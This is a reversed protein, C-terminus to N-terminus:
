TKNHRLISGHRTHAFQGQAIAPKGSVFVYHMGGSLRRPELFSAHERLDEPRFICIDADMGVQLRGKNAIRMSEAPLATVRRVAEQLSLVNEKCVYREFLRAYTGYVRPHPLGKIPYTADSIVSAFPDRLIQCIDDECNIRDIMTVACRERVLLACICDVPDLSLREAAENVTLGILAQHEARQMSSLIINDWGVMQAINDFDHAFKIRERLRDRQIPDSLRECIGDVGGELYDPPLLHLLQTSGAEYLYVDCTVDVGEARAQEMKRLADPIRKRWNRTGMAKLHSIHLPCRLARAVQLMEDLAECVKDGEERMHVCIPFQTNKLPELASILSKTTYFCEPAYGLGLSVGLAGESLAKELRLHIQRMDSPDNAQYGCVDTRVTGGGVTMGVHIPLNKCTELYAQMSHTPIDERLEGTVPQLYRLLADRNKEGFPALSLGCLGNVISTLGQALELEGFGDRFVAADAHRHIDLFGPTVCYGSVDLLEHGELNQGIAVIKGNEIALDAVYPIGGSGDVLTGGCLVTEFIM